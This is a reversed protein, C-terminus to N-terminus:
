VLGPQATLLHRSLLGAIGVRLSPRLKEGTATAASATVPDHAHIQLAKVISLRKGHYSRVQRVKTRSAQDSAAYQGPVGFIAHNLAAAIARMDHVLVGAVQILPQM